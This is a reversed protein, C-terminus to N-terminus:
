WSPDRAGRRCRGRRPRAPRGRRRRPRRDRRRPCGGPHRRRRPRRGRSALGGALARCGRRPRCCRRGAPWRAPPDAPRRGSRGVSVPAVRSGPWAPAPTRLWRSRGLPRRAGHGAAGRRPHDGGRGSRRRQPPCTGALRWARHGLGGPGRTRHRACHRHPAWRGQGPRPHRRAGRCVRGDQEQPLGQAPAPFRDPERGPEFGVLVVAKAKELDAYTVAGGDPGTAVVHSALFAAEEASHPRARFDVDNTGLIARAFKGYAYADEATVRGGTLVAPAKAAKLGAAAADLPRPGPPSSSSVARASWPSSSAIGSTPPSSPGAARTATGSRTSRRTTRAM